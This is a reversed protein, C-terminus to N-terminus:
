YLLLLVVSKYLVLVAIKGSVLISVHPPIGTAQIRDTPQGLRCVVLSSLRQIVDHERFLPTSFIRHDTPLTDRLFQAHYIISAIGFEAVMTLGSPLNPLCAEIVNTLDESQSVFMPPLIAFEPSDLPLGSVTRGVHMDGAGEYRLYTDQVGGLTWGARLHIASSSPCATSGSSAYTASGKRMSHTGIDDAVMGRNALEQLGDESELVRTLLRRFRDYQNGGPFLKMNCGGELPVCLLYLGLALIPCIEPMLPNAYIHRPERPREGYQDNKMHAFYIGLADNKWEMHSYCVSVLNGARCMLNWCLILFCHGFCCECKGSKLFAKGLYRYLSFDMADKGTKVRGDGSAIRSVIERKLGKFLISLEDSLHQPMQEGYDRFLNFLAARHSSYTSHGLTSGDAKCLSLMWEFFIKATLESFIIPPTKDAAELVKKHIDNPTASHVDGIIQCFSNSLLEAKNRCLWALFQASSRQYIRRSRVAIAQSRIERVREEIDEQGRQM